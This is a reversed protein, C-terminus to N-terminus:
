LRFLFVFDALFSAVRAVYDSPFMRYGQSHEADPVEWLENRPNGSSQLLLKVDDLPIANDREEHIFLIPSAVKPAVDIPDVM